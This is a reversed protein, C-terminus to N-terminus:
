LFILCISRCRPATPITLGESCLRLRVERMRCPLEPVSAVINAREERRTVSARAPASGAPRLGHSLAGSCHLLTSATRTKCSEGHLGALTLSSAFYVYRCVSGSVPITTS